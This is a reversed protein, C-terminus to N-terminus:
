VELRSRWNRVLDANGDHELWLATAGGHGDIWALASEIADVPAAHWQPQVLVDSDGAPLRRAAIRRLNSGTRLYDTIVDDREVGALLLLLAIVLGTRDKGARCHVLVPAEGSMAAVAAAVLGHSSSGLIHIYLEGLSTGPPLAQLADQSYPPVHSPQVGNPWPTPFAGVESDFRLDVVSAPPWIPIGSGPQSDTTPCDSRYLVGSRTIGGREFRLGGLDRLNAAAPAAAHASVHEPM